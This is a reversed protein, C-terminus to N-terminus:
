ALCDGLSKSAWSGEEAYPFLANANVDVTWSTGMLDTLKNEFDAKKSEFSDRLNKRIALPLKEVAPKVTLM